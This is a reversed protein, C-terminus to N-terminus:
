RGAVVEVVSMGSIPAALATALGDSDGQDVRVAPLGFGSAVGTVSGTQPVAFLREFHAALHPQGHELRSFISGGTDNIVIVQLDPHTELLGRNLSGVDHWFTLDGLLVRMPRGLALSIGSATAIAGDIGALGRSAFVPAAPTVTPCPAFLDAWRIVQSAGIFLPIGSDASDHTALEVVRAAWADGLRSETTGSTLTAAPGSREIERSAGVRWSDLWGLEAAPASPKQIASAVLAWGAQDSWDAGNTVVTIPIDSRALLRTVPRSLTPHGFVVVEDIRGGLEGALLWQYASIANGWRAGSSPEALLPYGCARAFESVGPGAGDGAVVVGRRGSPPPAVARPRGGPLRRRRNWPTTEEPPVGVLAFSSAAVPEVEPAEPVRAITPALPEVLCLNLHVPGPWRESEARQGGSAADVLERALEDALVPGIASAPVDYARRVLQFIGPQWTTQNAGTGRLEAPRDATLALLPIHSHNAELLAPLLNAVATGSTTVVTVRLEARGDTHLWGKALGLALFAAGREDARVHLRLRGADALHGAAYALPASRSGPCLVLERLGSAILSDLVQHAAQLSQPWNTSM